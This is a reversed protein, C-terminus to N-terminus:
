GLIAREGTLPDPVHAGAPGFIRAVTLTRAVPRADRRQVRRQDLAPVEGGIERRDLIPQAIRRRPLRSTKQRVSIGPPDNWSGMLRM